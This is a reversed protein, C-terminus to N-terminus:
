AYTDVLGAGIRGPAMPRVESQADRDGTRANAFRQPEDGTQQQRPSADSGVTVNSLELGISQIMDQLRPISAQLAERVGAHAAVLTLSAQEGSITLRVEVPGLQPPDIRLEAVQRSNSAMWLVREGVDAAFSRRPMSVPEDLPSPPAAAHQASVEARREMGHTPVPDQRLAGDTAAAREFPGARLVEFDAGSDDETRTVTTAEDQRQLSAPLSLDLEEFAATGLVALEATASREGQLSRLAVGPSMSPHAAHAAVHSALATHDVAELLSASAAQVAAEDNTQMTAPQGAQAAQEVSPAEGLQQSLLAQFDGANDGEGAAVSALSAERSAPLQLTRLVLAESM